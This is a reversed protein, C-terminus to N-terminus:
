DMGAITIKGMNTMKGCVKCSRQVESVDKGGHKNCLFDFHLVVKVNSM